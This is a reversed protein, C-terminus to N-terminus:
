LDAVDEPTATSKMIKSDDVFKLVKAQHPLIDGGMDGIMILFLLAGLVSGQPVGSKVYVWKPFQPAM